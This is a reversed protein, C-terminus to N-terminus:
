INIEKRGGGGCMEERAEAFTLNSCFTKFNGTKQMRSVIKFCM